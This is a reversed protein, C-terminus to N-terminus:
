TTIGRFETSTQTRFETYLIETIFKYSFRSKKTKFVSTSNLFMLKASTLVILGTCLFVIHENEVANQVLKIFM